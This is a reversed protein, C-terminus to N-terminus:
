FMTQWDNFGIVDNVYICDEYVRESSRNDYEDRYTKSVQNFGNNEMASKIVRQSAKKGEKFIKKKDYALKYFQKFKQNVDKVSVYTNYTKIRKDSDKNFEVEIEWKNLYKYSLVKGSAKLEELKDTFTFEDIFM